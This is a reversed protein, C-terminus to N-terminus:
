AAEHLWGGFAHSNEHCQLRAYDEDTFEAGCPDPMVILPASGDDRMATCALAAGGCLGATEAAPVYGVVAVGQGRMFRAPPRQVWWGGNDPADKWTSAAAPTLVLALSCALKLM